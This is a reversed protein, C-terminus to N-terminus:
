DPQHRRSASQRTWEQGNDIGGSVCIPISRQANLYMIGKLKAM